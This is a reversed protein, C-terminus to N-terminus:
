EQAGRAQDRLASVQQDLEELWRRRTRHSTHRLDNYFRISRLEMGSYSCVDNWFLEIARPPDDGPRDTTVLVITRLRTLLPVHRKETFEEGEWEYAIGPRLVREIWGKLLAPPGSWWDPHVFVLADCRTVEASYAQIQPDLSLRRAIEAGTLLPDPAEAYLDHRTVSEGLTSLKHALASALAHCFSTEFPHCAVMSVQMTLTYRNLYDGASTKAYNQTDFRRM